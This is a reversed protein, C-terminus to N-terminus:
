ILQNKRFVSEIEPWGFGKRGLLDILRKREAATLLRGSAIKKKILIKEIIAECATPPYFEELVEDIIKQDIRSQALESALARPGLFKLNIKDRAFMRAFEEDNLYGQEELRKLVGGVEEILWGKELLRQQLEGRSRARYSLLNLAADLLRQRDSRTLLSEVQEATLEDGAHVPDSLFVDGPIGFVRGDSLFVTRRDRYRRQIEVREVKIKLSKKREM